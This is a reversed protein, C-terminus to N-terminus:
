YWSDELSVRICQILTEDWVVSDIEFGAQNAQVPEIIIINYKESDSGKSSPNRGQRSTKLTDCFLNVSKGSKDFHTAKFVTSKVSFWNVVNGSPMQWHGFISVQINVSFLISTSGSWTLEIWWSGKNM